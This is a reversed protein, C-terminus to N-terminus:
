AGAGSESAAHEKESADTRDERTDLSEIARHLKRMVSALSRAAVAEGMNRWVNIGCEPCAQKRTDLGDLVDGILGQARRLSDIRRVKIM